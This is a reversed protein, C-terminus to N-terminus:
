RPTSIEMGDYGLLVNGPLSKSVEDYLGMHHSVHTLYAKKPQIKAIVDLAETLNLHSYHGSHHLANLVLIKTGQLQALTDSPITKADTVYSFDDIRFAMVPLTGHMVTLPLVSIGAVTFVKGAEMNHLAFVPAGPYPNSSFAYSYRSQLEDGVKPTVYVPMAMKQKFNFPRVDDLGAVHDNHEHTILLADLRKVNARLMQQRFDPGADIVINTDGASVLASTRLRKNRPDASTCVACECGIVPVGQSTGTGLLTVKLNNM